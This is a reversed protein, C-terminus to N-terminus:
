RQHTAPWQAVRRSHRHEAHFENMQNEWDEYARPAIRKFEEQFAGELERELSGESEFWMVTCLEFLQEARLCEAISHTINRSDESSTARFQGSHQRTRAM